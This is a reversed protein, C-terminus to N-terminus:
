NCLDGVLDLLIVHFEEDHLSKRDSCSESHQFSSTSHIKIVGFVPKFFLILVWLLDSSWDSAIGTALRQEYAWFSRIKASSASLQPPM